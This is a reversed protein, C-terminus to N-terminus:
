RLHSFFHWLAISASSSVNLSHKVGCQPIELVTDSLDVIGQNVGEVENGAVIVYGCNREPVFEDLPVSGHTQELACIKWGADRLKKVEELADEVHRWRVTEEAGLATKSIEPHPPRGSIGALIFEDILFADSTRFLAGINYMSRVNDALLKVPLKGKQRYEEVSCNTLEVINKKKRDM